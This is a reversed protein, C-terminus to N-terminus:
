HGKSKAKTTTVAVNTKQAIKPAVEVSGSFMPDLAQALRRAPSRALVAPPCLEGFPHCPDSVRDPLCGLVFMTLGFSFPATRM